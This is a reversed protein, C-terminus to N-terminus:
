QFKYDLNFNFLFLELQEPYVGMSTALNDLLEVYQYYHTIDQKWKQSGLESFQKKNLSDVIKLDYIQCKMSDVSVNFFYLFKSWTSPGLGRFGKFQKILNNVQDKTLDRKDVSSLLQNIEDIKMLLNEINRNRGGTPYGWMLVMIIKKESDVESFVDERSLEVEEKDGFIAKEIREKGNYSVREWSKKKIRTSQKFVPIKEILESYESILPM